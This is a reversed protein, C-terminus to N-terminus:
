SPGSAIWSVVIGYILGTFGGWLIVGPNAFGTFLTPTAAGAILGLILGIAASAVASAHALHSVLYTHTLSLLIGTVVGWVFVMGIAGGLTSWLGERGKHLEWVTLAVGTAPMALFLMAALRKLYETTPM